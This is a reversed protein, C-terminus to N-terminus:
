VGVTILHARYPNTDPPSFTATVLPQPGEYFGFNIAVDYRIDDSTADTAFAWVIVERNDGPGGDLTTETGVSFDFPEPPDSAPVDAYRHRWGTSPEINFPRPQPM